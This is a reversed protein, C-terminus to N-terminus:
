EEKLSKLFMVMRGADLRRIMEERNMKNRM